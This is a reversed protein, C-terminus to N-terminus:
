GTRDTFYKRNVDRRNSGCVSDDTTKDADGAAAYDGLSCRMYVSVKVFSILVPQNLEQISYETANDIDHPGLM